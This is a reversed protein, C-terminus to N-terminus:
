DNEFIGRLNRLIMEHDHSLISYKNANYFDTGGLSTGDHWCKGGTFECDKHSEERNNMYEPPSYNHHEIGACVYGDDDVRSFWFHIVKDDLHVVWINKQWADPTYRYFDQKKPQEETM